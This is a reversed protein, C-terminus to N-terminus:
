IVLPYCSNVFAFLSISTSTATSGPPWACTLFSFCLFGRLYDVSSTILIIFNLLVLLKNINETQQSICEQNSCTLVHQFLIHHYPIIRYSMTCKIVQLSSNQNWLRLDISEKYIYTYMYMNYIYICSANIHYSVNDTHSVINTIGWTKVSWTEGLKGCIVMNSSLMAICCPGNICSLLRSFPRNFM